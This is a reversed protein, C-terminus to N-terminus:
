RLFKTFRPPNKEGTKLVVSVNAVLIQEAFQERIQHNIM